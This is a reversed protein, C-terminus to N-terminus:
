TLYQFNYIAAILNFRLNFRKRRNRYKDSIIRFRKLIAFINENFVRDKALQHNNQKDEKTLPHLKSKKKPLVSNQHLRTIGLYGSDVLVKTEPHIHTKSTKFLKFDHERGKGFDTCIIKQGSVIM